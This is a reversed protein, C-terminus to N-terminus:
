NEDLTELMTLVLNGTKYLSEASLKDITDAETHWYANDPGYDFDILDIASFGELLFPVHDDLIYSYSRKVLTPFGCQKAATEALDALFPTTNVPPTIILDKDGIMDCVIVARVNRKTQRLHRALYKSGHLGDNDSYSVSCEEGDVWALLIGCNANQKLYPILSVFLASSSGGDNAGKFNPGIGQKLDYHSILVIWTDTKGPLEYLVNIFTRDGHPTPDIFSQLTAQPLQQTIWTAQGNFSEISTLAQEAATLPYPRTEDKVANPQCGICLFLSFFVATMQALLTRRNNYIPYTNIM